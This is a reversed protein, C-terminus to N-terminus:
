HIMTKIFLVITIIQPVDPRECVFLQHAQYPHAGQEIYSCAHQQMLTACSHVIDAIFGKEGKMADDDTEM